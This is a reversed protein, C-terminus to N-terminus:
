RRAEEVIAMVADKTTGGQIAGCLIGNANIVFTSPIYRVGFYRATLCGEDLLVKMKYNNESIFKQVKSKTERKGDTMNIALLVANSKDLEADLEAFEPMEARCPPCWTAWFNLVVVCGAYDSLRVTKGALDKLEFDNVKLADSADDAFAASCLSIILIILATIVRKLM